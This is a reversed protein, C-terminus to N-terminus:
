PWFGPKITTGGLLRCDVCDPLAGYEPSFPSSNYPEIPIYGLTNFYLDFDAPNVLIPSCSYGFTWPAVEDNTIYIRKSSMNSATVFGLVPENINNVAHINGTLQSPQADFLTGLQESVRKLNQLYEYSEKTLSYQRLLISYKLSLEISNTAFHRIPNQNIIDQSLKISSALLLEKSNNTIWCYYIFEEPSRSMLFGNKYIDRSLLSAHYQYTETYDWKYYKTNGLSDHANSYITVGADTKQWSISDIPPTQTVTIEDSIYEKSDATKIRLRYKNNIDLNMGPLTYGGDNNIQQFYYLTTGTNDEITIEANNEGSNVLNSDLKRTRSLRIFTSDPSNNLFGDVVLYNPNIQLVPPEYREKCGVLLMAALLFRFTYKKIKM